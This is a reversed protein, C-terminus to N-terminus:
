ELKNEPMARPLVARALNCVDSMVFHYLADVCPLSSASSLLFWLFFFGKGAASIVLQEM